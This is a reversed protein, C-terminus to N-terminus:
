PEIRRRYFASLRPLLAGVNRQYACYIEGFSEIMAREEHVLRWMLLPVYVFVAGGLAGWANAVLPVSVLEMIVAIYIPHRVWSYVGHTILKHQERIEIHLSFYHGLTRIAVNRLVVSVVYLVLGVASIWYRVQRQMWFYEVVSGAFVGVHVTMLVPFSLRLCRNGQITPRRGFTEMLRQAVVFVMFVVFGATFWNQEM